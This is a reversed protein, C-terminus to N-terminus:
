EDRPGVELKIIPSAQSGLANTAVVTFTAPEAAEPTGHLRGDPDLQLGAPPTGSGVTYVVPPTGDAAFM